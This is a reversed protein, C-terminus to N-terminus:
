ILFNEALVTVANEQLNVSVKSGTQIETNETTNFVELVIDELQVQHSVVGGKILTKTVVATGDVSKKLTIREKRVLVTGARQSFNGLPCNGQSDLDILNKHGLCRAVYVSEPNSWIESPTGIRQIKGKGLVAIKDAIAFAEDQDHTVHLVTQGLSKLLTDLESVLREHLVRDLSRFPEDLLLLHPKPALARALAVRQAEGGSLSDINRSSFEKLNFLDLLEHVQENRQDKPIKAMKLGFEINEFVNRHHFLAYDQFVMGMGRLHTPVNNLNQSNWFINGSEPFHLGAILRLLTSKGSGSPGLLVVIDGQDVTLNLDDLISLAGYSAIINELRLGTM